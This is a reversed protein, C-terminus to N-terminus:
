DTYATNADNYIGTKRNEYIGRLYEYFNAYASQLYPMLFIFGIGFTLVCLLIWGIFSLMLCFLRGKHGMMMNKSLKIAESASINDNDALIFFAQSYSLSAVIGPIIFLLSWLFTFIEMLLYLLASRKIVDFGYSFGSFIYSINTEGTRVFKLMYNSIGYTICGSIVINIVIVALSIILAFVGTVFTLLGSSHSQIFTIIATPIQMVMAIAYVILMSVLMAAIVPGWKGRLQNLSLRKFDKSYM